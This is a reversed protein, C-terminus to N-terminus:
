FLLGIASAGMVAATLWGLTKLAPSLSVHGMVKPSSALLMMVIILPVAVVGNIVATWFLAKMPSIGMFDIGLGVLTAAALILYFGRAEKFQRELGTPWQMAEGVAYGASGALVPVALLGTGIIGLSFLLFCFRGALPRLAEAAQSATEIQTLGHANLTAAATLMIFFAVVNAIAMGSYTDMGIRHLERVARWPRLILPHRRPNCEQEEVEESAQWFMLYPSITTGFLATLMNFYERDFTVKPLVTRKLAEGWPIHVSFATIVYALLAFALWRLFKVYRTYPFYIEATISFIAFFLCYLHYFGGILLKLAEAMAALDAGINITNAVVLLAVVPFLLWKSYQCRINGAIGRGTVCGIRASIQQIATMLPYMLPMAWLLTYGFRAGAQSYTAIGSPDDDSVGTIVGPGLSKFARKFAGKRM